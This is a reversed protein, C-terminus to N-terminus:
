CHCRWCCVHDNRVLDCTSQQLSTMPQSPAEYYCQLFTGWRAPEAFLKLALAYQNVEAINSWWWTLWGLNLWVDSHSGVWQTMQHISNFHRSWGILFQSCENFLLYKTMWILWKHLISRRIMLVYLLHLICGTNREDRSLLSLINIYQIIQMNKMAYKGIHYSKDGTSTNYIDGASTIIKHQLGPGLSPNTIIRIM